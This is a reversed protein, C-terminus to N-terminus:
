ATEGNWYLESVEVTKGKQVQVLVRILENDALKGTYNLQLGAAGYTDITTRLPGSIMSRNKNEATEKVLEISVRTGPEGKLSINVGLGVVHGPGRVFTRDSWKEDWDERFTVYEKKGSGKLVQNRKRQSAGNFPKLMEYWEKPKVITQTIPKTPAGFSKIDLYRPDYWGWAGWDRNNRLEWHLHSGTSLGAGVTGLAGGTNGIYDGANVWEGDAVAMYSLHGNRVVTGDPAIIDIVWAGLGDTWHIDITGSMTARLPTGQPMAFDTGVHDAWGVGRAGPWESVYKTDFPWFIEAM